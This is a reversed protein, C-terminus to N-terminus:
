LVTRRQPPRAGLPGTFGRAVAFSGRENKKARYLAEDAARLLDTATRAHTPYVAIGGSIGIRTRKGDPLQAQYSSITESIKQCVLSTTQLDTQTLVLVLEDGGFRCIFDSTRLNQALFNFTVRLIQDGVTHGYTDNIEKFHDLDMMIVAFSSATRRAKQIERELHQDLARRNPLGTIADTYAQYNLAAHLRVNSIAIAAQNALLNLLRLEPKSFPGTISRSINMVGVVKEDIKLPIGIISGKWTDPARQFLFSNQIDEVLIQEGQRAVTYTLGDSRPQALAQHHVGNVDMATGFELRDDIPDYLFIHVNRAHRVLRIAESVVVDLVDPLELSSTLSFSLKRLTDLEEAQHQIIALLLDPDLATKDTESLNPASASLVDLLHLLKQQDTPSLGSQAITQRVRAFSDWKIVM